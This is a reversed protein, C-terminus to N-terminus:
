AGAGLGAVQATYAVAIAVLIAIGLGWERLWGFGRLRALGLCVAMVAASTVLTLAHVSSKPVEALGLSIFAALLAAAPVISMLVPDVKELKHGGRKLLPTLILTSVMWLSGGISMAFFMIAFAHQDYGPGGLEAGVSGAAISAAATEYQVSGILGIRILTAPTGLLALMAVAVLVVAMSPGIAAIAGTRFATRLEERTMGAAATARTAAKMYIVSQIAIVLFVGLALVWLIPSNALALVQTSGPDSPATTLM